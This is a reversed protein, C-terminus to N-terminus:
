KITVIVNNKLVIKFKNGNEDETPYEGNIGLKQIYEQTKQSILNSSIKNIDFGLVREFYRIIAHESIVINENKSGFEKIKQEIESITKRNLEFQRQRFKIEENLIENESKIKTLQTQLQKLISGNM